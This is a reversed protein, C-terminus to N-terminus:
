TRFVEMASPSDVTTTQCRMAAVRGFSTLAVYGGIARMAYGWRELVRFTSWHIVGRANDIAFTPGVLKCHTRALLEVMARRLTANRKIEPRFASVVTVVGDNISWTSVIVLSVIM